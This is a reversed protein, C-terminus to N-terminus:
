IFCMCKRHLISTLSYTTTGRSLKEPSWKWPRIRCKDANVAVHVPSLGLAVASFVVCVQGTRSVLCLVLLNNLQYRSPIIPDAKVSVGPLPGISAVGGELVPCCIFRVESSWLNTHSCSEVVRSFPLVQVTAQLFWEDAVSTLLM